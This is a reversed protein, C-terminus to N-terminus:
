GGPRAAADCVRLSVLTLGSTKASYYLEEWLENQFVSQGAPTAANARTNVRLLTGHDTNIRSV